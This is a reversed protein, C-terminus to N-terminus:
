TKNNENRKIEWLYADKVSFIFVQQASRHENTKYAEMIEQGRYV